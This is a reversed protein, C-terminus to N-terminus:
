AAAQEDAAPEDDVAPDNDTGPPPDSAAVIEDALRGDATPLYAEDAVAAQRYALSDGVFAFTEVLAVGPDSPQADTWSPAVVRAASQPAAIAVSAAVASLLLLM